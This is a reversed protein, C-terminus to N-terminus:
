KAGGSVKRVFPEVRWLTQKAHSDFTGILKYTGFYRGNRAGLWRGLQRGDIPGTPKNGPPQPVFDGLAELVKGAATSAGKFEEHWAALFAGWEQDEADRATAATTRDALWGPVELYDLVGAVMSAWESYDGFRVSKTKAGDAIWGHVMTVLAAVVTSAHKRLWPRLDGVVFGDREDPNPCDPELRVWVARRSNDGGTQLANGTLIWLRDNPMQVAETRGLIRDGWYEGTLLTSLQASKIVHGNPLNDFVVVPQGQTFLQSTISKRLEEDAMSWATSSISYCYAFIDKLLTKGSGKDTATIIFMPTPGHFYHRLIPTLLAGLMHARDSASVFPFDALMQDLVIAKAKAIKEATVPAEIRRLPAHPHMYLGTVADYGPTEIFSGDPRVVPTTVIGRLRPLPWNKRGLITSCTRVQPLEWVDKTGGTDKDEVVAVTLTNEHLYARLNEAGLEHMIPHGQEDTDIWSLGGARTYLGPMEGAAMVELVRQIGHAESTIDIRPKGQPLREPERYSSQRDPALANAGDTPPAADHQRIPSVSALHRHPPKDGYGQRALERAAAKFDGGHQLLAYAGFKTYPTEAEFETSTSFVYLRDRDAAHGTTASIGRDKGPRCWLGTRGHQHVFTWGAPTLIDAGWDAKNEYDDGPRLLGGPLPARMDRPASAPTDKVPMEDVARLLSHLAAYYEASITPITAPSGTVRTYPNSTPHVRGHSPEVVAFGGAGRTEILVAPFVKGPNKVFQALQSPTLEDDRAPRAALKTNGKVPAGEVRVHFHLGGGGSQRVWGNTVQKWMEGLGSAEAIETVKDLYGEALARPEIEIMESNGSVEGFIVGIGTRPGGRRDPDFWAAHEDPTSRQTIYTRWSRLDPAKSGDARVPIVSLGAEGYERAAALLDPQPTEDSASPVTNV